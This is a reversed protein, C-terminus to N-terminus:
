NNLIHLMDFLGGGNYVENVGHQGLIGAAMGSRNGSRCYVVIPKPMASIESVKFAVEELPINQAGPFHESEFELPSRVDIITATKNKITNIVNEM